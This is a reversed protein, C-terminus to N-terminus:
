KMRQCVGHHQLVCSVVSHCSCMHEAQTLRQQEDLNVTGSHVHMGRYTDISVGPSSQRPGGAGGARGRQCLQQAVCSALEEGM